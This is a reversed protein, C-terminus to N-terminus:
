GNQTELYNGSCCGDCGHVGLGHSGQKAYFAVADPDSHGVSHECIREPFGTPKLSFPNWKRLILRADKLPHGSPNHISCFEGECVERKHVKWVTDSDDTLRDYSWRSNEQLKVIQWM